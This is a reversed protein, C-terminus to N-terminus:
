FFSGASTASEEDCGVHAGVDTLQFTRQNAKGNGPTRHMTDLDSSHRDGLLAQLLEDVGLNALDGDLRDLPGTDSDKPM